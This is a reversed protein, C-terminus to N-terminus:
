KLSINVSPFDIIIYNDNGGLGDLNQRMTKATFINNVDFSVDISPATTSESAIYPTPLSQEVEVDTGVVTAGAPLTINTSDSFDITMTIPTAAGTSTGTYATALQQRGNTSTLVGSSVHATTNTIANNTCSTNPVTTCAKVTFTNGVKVKVKTYTGYTMAADNSVMAGIAAGAGASAIDINTSTNSLVIWKATTSNYIELKKITVTYEQISSASIKATTSITVASAIVSYLGILGIIKLIIKMM